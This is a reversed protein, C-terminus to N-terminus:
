NGNKTLDGESLNNITFVVANVIQNLLMDAEQFQILGKQLSKNIRNCRELAIITEDYAEVDPRLHQKLVLLAKELDNILIDKIHIKLEALTLPLM